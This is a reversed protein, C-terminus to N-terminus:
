LIKQPIENKLSLNMYKRLGVFAFGGGVGGMARAGLALALALALAHLLLLLLLLLLSCMMFLDDVHGHRRLLDHL